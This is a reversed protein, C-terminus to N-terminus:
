NFEQPKEEKHIRGMHIRIGRDSSCPLNCTPCRFMWNQVYTDSKKEYDEIVQPHLNSRPVWDNEKESYGKWKILYSRGTLPGMHDVIEEMEYEDKRKCRSAHIQMDRKTLFSHDCNLHPCKFRCLKKAEEQTTKSVEDQERVHLTM